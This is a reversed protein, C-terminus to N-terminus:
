DIKLLAKWANSVAERMESLVAKTVVGKSNQLTQRHGLARYTKYSESLVEAHTPDLYGADSLAEIIRVNDTYEYLAASEKAYNLVLYQVAFEIDVIGGADQKINFEDSGETSGLHDRMKQRMAVVEDRLEDASREKCLVKARVTEFEGKLRSSGAVVRARVLAQHEWTWAENMQYAEFANLSSVLLGSNGSPRLRMDVEYLQGSTTFTNLIHIIRQGLRTFFVDNAIEKNGGITMLNSPADHVFVLDLDSGYSLEIGGLKGFGIIVFDQDCAVGASRQPTGYKTTMDRWAIELVAQLIAEALWTLYDSVKMLPLVGTIDAAAVRLIHANRFYRLAEMLQEIDDEPIRMLQQRLEHSLAEADPPNFLSAADILEDLLVPQHALKEAFWPSASCLKVLQARASPNEALLLLYASRRVVAQILQLVRELTEEANEVGSLDRLLRPLLDLLREQGVNQLAQVTRLQRLSVLAKVARDTESYGLETLYHALAEQDSFEEHWLGTLHADSEIQEANDEQEVPTIVDSFHKSVRNRHDKLETLLAESNNFGMSYALRQMGLDDAPLEQTQKDAQAQIAHEVNRLFVYAETLETVVSEPIGVAEPLLPLINCLERQQLRTDRGGRILQFAQAIFEVERIGGAGLKVNNERGKLRNEREIMGKMERLSEFASYDIYKRYVFPRLDKMLLAGAEKDGAIIRAKILAYREWERGQTQYYQEMADFSAVLPGSSGFPRLRMDVRFVFGEATPADLVRILRKGLRTFFEQNSLSRRGGQTEGNDPFTFILDIDSSLNLEHAGLKGMGIVAMRQLNGASDRPEGLDKVLDKHLWNLAADTTADALESLMRTTEVLDASRTLDRWIIRVMALRRLRRLAVSLAEESEVAEVSALVQETLIGAKLEGADLDLQEILDPHRQLQDAVYDSGMLVRDLQALRNQDSGLLDRAASVKQQQKELYDNLIATM